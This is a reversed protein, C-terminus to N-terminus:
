RLDSRQFVTWEPWWRGEGGTLGHTPHVCLQAFCVDECEPADDEPGIGYCLEGTLAPNVGADVYLGGPLKAPAGTAPFRLPEEDDPGDHFTVADDGVVIIAPLGSGELPEDRETWTLHIARGEPTDEVRTVTAVVPTPDEALPTDPVADDFRFTAGPALVAAWLAAAGSAEPPSPPPPPSPATSPAAPAGGCAAVVVLVVPCRNM